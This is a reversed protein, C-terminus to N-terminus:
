TGRALVGQITELEQHHAFYHGFCTSCIIREIFGQTADLQSIGEVYQLECTSAANFNSEM